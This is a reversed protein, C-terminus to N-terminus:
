DMNGASQESKIWEAKWGDAMIAFEILDIADGSKIHSEAFQLVKWGLLQAQNLKDMDNIQGKGRSHRGRIWVGGNVEVALLRDPWAFDFRWRMPKAFVLERTPMPLKIAKIQLFLAEELASMGAGIKRDTSAM